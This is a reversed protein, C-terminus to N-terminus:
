KMLTGCTGLPLAEVGLPNGSDRRRAAGYNDRIRAPDLPEYRARTLPHSNILHTGRAFLGISLRGYTRQRSVIGVLKHSSSGYNGVGNAARM